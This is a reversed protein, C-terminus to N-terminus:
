GMMLKEQVGRASLVERVPAPSKFFYRQLNARRTGPQASKLFLIGPVEPKEDSGKPFVGSSPAGPIMVPVPKQPLIRAAAAAPPHRNQRSKRNNELNRQWSDAENDPVGKGTLNIYGTRQL